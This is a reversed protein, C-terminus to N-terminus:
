EEGCIRYHHIRYLKNASDRRYLLTYVLRTGFPLAKLHRKYNFKYSRIYHVGRIKEPMGHEALGWLLTKGRVPEQGSQTSSVMKLAKETYVDFVYETYPFKEKFAAFLSMNEEETMYMTLGEAIVLVNESDPVQELWSLEAADSGIMRYSDSERYFERRLGIVEPFDLDFWMKPKRSLRECRSDLGCGLHLVTCDPHKEIFEEAAEDLVRARIGLFVALFKNEDFEGSSNDLCAAIEEAKPDKLLECSRSLAARSWILELCKKNEGDIRSIEM